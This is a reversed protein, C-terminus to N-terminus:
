EMNATGLQRYFVPGDRWELIFVMPGGSSQPLQFTECRCCRITALVKGIRAACQCVCSFGVVWLTFM